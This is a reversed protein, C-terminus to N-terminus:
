QVCGGTSLRNTAKLGESAAVKIQAATLAYGTNPITESSAFILGLVKGSPSLLPGGSNGPVVTGRIAIVERKHEGKEHIDPSDITMVSRVRAASATLAGGEPFGVVAASDGKRPEDAFSLPKTKLRNVRLVAIDLKPDFVVTKARYTRENLTVVPASVGAVVHANTMVLQPAYVFGSGTVIKKCQSPGSVAVVRQASRRLRRDDVVGPDPTSVEVVVERSFPQLYEPFVDSTMAKTLGSLQSAAAQPMVADIAHLVRSDKVSQSISISPAGVIAFGIAWSASLALATGFIAGFVSNIKKPWGEPIKVLRGILSLALNGALGCGIVLGIASIAVLPDTSGPKYLRQVLYAGLIFGSILGVGSFLNSVLGYKWGARVFLLVFIIIAVDTWNM